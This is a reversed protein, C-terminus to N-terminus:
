LNERTFWNVKRVSVQCKDSSNAVYKDALFRFLYIKEIFVYMYKPDKNYVIYLKM